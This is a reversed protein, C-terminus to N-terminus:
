REIMLELSNWDEGMVHYTEGQDTIVDQFGASKYCHYASPNNEFVGLSAKKGGYIQFIFKIGQLLMAKGYGKGRSKPDVIVFGFRLEDKVDKPERLTFFGVIGTENFAVFPYMRKVFAFEKETIPYNGMVGATWQYFEIEDKCWALITNADSDKYPRLRIMDAGGKGINKAFCLRDIEMM